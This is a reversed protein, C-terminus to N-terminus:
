RDGVALGSRDGQVLDGGGRRQQGGRAGWRVWKPPPSQAASHVVVVSASVGPVLTTSDAAADLGM